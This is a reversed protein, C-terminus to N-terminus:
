ATATAVAKGTKNDVVYIQRGELDKKFDLYHNFCRLADKTSEFEGVACQIKAWDLEDGDRYYRVSFGEPVPHLNVPGVNKARMIISHFELSKDLMSGGTISDFM